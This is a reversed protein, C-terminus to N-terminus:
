TGPQASPLAVDVPWDPSDLAAVRWFVLASWVLGVFPVVLIAADFWRYGVKPALWAHLGIMPVLSLPGTIWYSLETATALGDELLGLGLWAALLMLVSLGARRRTSRPRGLDSM